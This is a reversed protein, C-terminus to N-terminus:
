KKKKLEIYVLGTGGKLEEPRKKGAPDFCAKLTEGTIEYIGLMTSGKQDGETVTCDVTAPKKSPDFKNTGAQAVAEGKKITYKDGDFTITMQKVDDVPTPKGDMEHKTFEWTGSPRGEKEDAARTGVALVLGVALVSFLAKM